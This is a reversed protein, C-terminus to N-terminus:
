RLEPNLIQIRLSSFLPSFSIRSHKVLAGTAGAVSYTQRNRRSGPTLHLMTTLELSITSVCINEDSTLSPLGISLGNQLTQM